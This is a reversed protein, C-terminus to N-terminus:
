LGLWARPVGFEKDWPEYAVDTPGVVYAEDSGKKATAWKGDTKKLISIVEPGDFFGEKIRAEFKSGKYDASTLESDKGTKIDRKMIHAFFVAKSDDSKYRRVLFVLKKGELSAPHGFDKTVRARLADLQAQRTPTITLDSESTEGVVEDGNPSTGDDNASDEADAACGIMSFSLFLVSALGLLKKM